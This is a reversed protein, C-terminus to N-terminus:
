FTVIGGWNNLAWVAAGNGVSVNSVGNAVFTFTQTTPNWQYLSGEANVGWVTGDSGVSIQALRAGPVNVWARKTSDYYYVWQAANVGWVSTANGVSIQILSGPVNVWSQTDADFRYIQQQANMGWTTGDAGVSLQALTGPIQKWGQNGQDYTYTEGASNIGWVSRDAGVEIFNLNGAISNWSGANADYQFINGNDDIGWVDGRAGLSLQALLPAGAVAEFSQTGTNFFEVRNGNLGWVSGDAGVSIQSLSGPIWSLAQYARTVQGTTFIQQAPNVGWATGNAGVAISSLNGPVQSWSQSGASWQFVQGGVSVGFVSAGSGIAVQAISAGGAADMTDHLVDYHYAGNNKVAWLDGDAGAAIQAFGITGGIWEFYGTGLNYWYISGASNLGYIAGASGAVIQALTGPVESFFGAQANYHYISSQYNIGWVDGDASVAIQTLSGPVNVWKSDASDWRYIQQQANIGWIASSSGVAIQELAGPINAWGPDSQYQFIQQQANVGGVTGDAGVSVQTLSGPVNTFSPPTAGTFSINGGAAFALSNFASSLDVNGAIQINGTAFLSGAGALGGTITADGNVCALTNDLTVAQQVGPTVACGSATLVGNAIPATADGTLTVTNGRQDPFSVTAGPNVLIGADGWQVSAHPNLAYFLSGGYNTPASEIAFAAGEVVPLRSDVYQQATKVTATECIQDGAQAGTENTDAVVVKGLYTGTITATESISGQTATFQATCPPNSNSFGLTQTASFLPTPVTLSVGPGTISIPGGDPDWGSGTFMVPQGALADTTGTGGNAVTGLAQFQPVGTQHIPLQAGSVSITSDRFGGTNAAVLYSVTGNGTGSDGSTIVIWPVTSSATWSCASNDTVTITGTGGTTPFNQQTAPSITPAGCAPGTTPTYTINDISMYEPINTDSPGNVGEYSIIVGTTVAAGTYGSLVLTGVGPQLTITGTYASGGLFQQTYTLIVAGCQGSGDVCTTASTMVWFGGFIVVNPATGSQNYGFGIIIGSGGALVANPQSDASVGFFSGSFYIAPFGSSGSIDLGCYNYPVQQTVGHPLATLDDFTCTTGFAGPAFALFLLAPLVGM